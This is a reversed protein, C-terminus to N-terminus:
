KKKTLYYELGSRIVLVALNTICMIEPNVSKIVTIFIITGISSYVLSQVINNIYYLRLM